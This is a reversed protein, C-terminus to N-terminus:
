RFLQRIQTTFHNRDIRANRLDFGRPLEPQICGHDAAFVKRVLLFEIGHKTIGHQVPNPTCIHHQSSHITRQFWAASKNSFASAVTANLLDPSSQNLGQFATPKIGDPSTFSANL